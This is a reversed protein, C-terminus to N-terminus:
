FHRGFDATAWPRGHALVVAFGVDRLRCNDLNARHAPSAVWARFLRRPTRQGWALNEALIRWHRYGAAPVRVALDAEGAVRHSLNTRMLMLNSHRRAALALAANARLPRCGHSARRANTRAFLRREFDAASLRSATRQGITATDPALAAAQASPVPVLCLALLGLLM